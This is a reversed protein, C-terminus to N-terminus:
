AFIKHATLYRDKYNAPPFYHSILALFEPVNESQIYIVANPGADFTYAAKIAHYHANYHTVIDVIRRSTACMYMIPPYTDLCVAHFQNSEQMTLLGFTEFDKKWIAKEIRALRTPVITESRYKLMESTEVSRQMGETSSTAKKQDSVVLILVELEPWHTHSAVQVAVSDSGDPSSGREWKVFGGYMSRCASGSGQRAISSIEGKVDFLQALAFVLCAYGAASSALGAATPFNNTSCIHIYEDKTVGARQRIETICKQLRPNDVSQERGNLWMRDQDFSQSRAVTTTAQLEKQDLTASLSSNLPLILQENRKGWYKIVAINV